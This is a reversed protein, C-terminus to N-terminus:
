SYFLYFFFKEKLKTNVSVPTIRQRILIKAISKRFIHHIENINILENDTRNSYLLTIPIKSKKLSSKGFLLILNKNTPKMLQDFHTLRYNQIM